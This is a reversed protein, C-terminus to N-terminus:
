SYLFPRAIVVKREESQSRPYNRLWTRPSPFAERAYLVVQDVSTQPSPAFSQLQIRPNSFIRLALIRSVQRAWLVVQSIPPKPAPLSEFFGVKRTRVQALQWYAGHIALDQGRQFSPLQTYPGSFAQRSRLVVEFIAKPGPALVRFLREQACYWRPLRRSTTSYTSAMRALNSARCLSRTLCTSSIRSSRVFAM